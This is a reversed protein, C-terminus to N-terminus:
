TLNCFKSYESLNLNDKLTYFQLWLHERSPFQNIFKSLLFSLQKQLTLGGFIGGIYKLRFLYKITM